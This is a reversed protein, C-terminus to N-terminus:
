GHRTSLLYYIKVCNSASCYFTYTVTISNRISSICDYYHWEGGRGLKEGCWCLGFTALRRCLLTTTWHELWHNFSHDTSLDCSVRWEIWRVVQVAFNSKVYETFSTEFRQNIFKACLVYISCRASPFFSCQSKRKRFDLRPPPTNHINCCQLMLLVPVNTWM